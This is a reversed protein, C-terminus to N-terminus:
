SDSYSLFNAIKSKLLPLSLDALGCVLINARGSGTAVALEQQLREQNLPNVCTILMMKLMERIEDGGIQRVRHVIEFGKNKCASKQDYTTCSVGLFQYGILAALDVEFYTQWQPKRLELGMCLQAQLDQEAFTQQLARFVHMELWQGDLFRMMEYFGILVPDSLEHWALDQPSLLFASDPFCALVEALSEGPKFEQLCAVLEPEAKRLNKRFLKLYKPHRINHIGSCTKMMMDRIHRWGSEQSSGWFQKLREQVLLAQLVDLAANFTSDLETILPRYLEFQHLQVLEQFSIQILSRLPRQHLVEGTLDNVLRFRRGDLYSFSLDYDTAQELVRYTHLAMAKTGGSYNFHIRRGQLHLLLARIDQQISPAMSIDRIPHLRVPVEFRAKLAAQVQGAQQATSTQQPGSASYLLWVTQQPQQHELFYCAVLYAILPNTGILLILNESQSVRM